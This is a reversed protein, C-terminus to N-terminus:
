NACPEYNPDSLLENVRENLNIMANVEGYQGLEAIYFEALEDNQTLLGQHHITNLPYPPEENSLSPDVQKLLGFGIRRDIENKGLRQLESAVLRCIEQRDGQECFSYLSSASPMQAAAVGVGAVLNIRPNTFGADRMGLHFLQVSRGFWNFRENASTVAVLEQEAREPQEAAQYYRFAMLHFEADGKYRTAIGQVYDDDCLNPQDSCMKLLQWNYKKTFESSQKHKDLQEFLKQDIIRDPLSLYLSFYLLNSADTNLAKLRTLEEQQFDILNAYEVMEWLSLDTDCTALRPDNNASSQQKNDDFNEKQTKNEIGQTKSIRISEDNSKRSSTFDQKGRFLGSYYGFMFILISSFLLVLCLIVLQKKKM